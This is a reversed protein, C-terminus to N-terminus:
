KKAGRQARLRTLEDNAKGYLPSRQEIQMLAAEAARNEEEYKASLNNQAYSQALFNHAAYALWSGSDSAGFLERSRELDKLATGALERAADPPIEPSKAQQLRSQADDMAIIALTRRAVNCEMTFRSSYNDNLVAELLSRADDNIGTEHLVQGAMLLLPVPTMFLESFNRFRHVRRAATGITRALSQQLASDHLQRARQWEPYLAFVLQASAMPNDPAKKVADLMVWVENGFLTGRLFGTVAVVGIVAAWILQNVRNFGIFAREHIYRLLMGDFLLAAGTILFPLALYQYRDYAPFTWQSVNLMPGLAAVWALGCFVFLRRMVPMTVLIGMGYISLLVTLVAWFAPSAFSGVRELQQFFSATWPLFAVRLYIMLTGPLNLVMDRFTWSASHYVAAAWLGLWVFLACLILFPAYSLMATIWTPSPRNDDDAASQVRSLGCLEYILVIPAVVLGSSKSLCGASMLLTALAVRQVRPRNQNFYVALAWFSFLGCLLTKQESIWDVSEPQIAHSAWLVAIGLALLPRHTLNRLMAMCAWAAGAHLLVSVIRYPLPHDGFLHWQIWVLLEHLPAYHSLHHGFFLNPSLPGTANPNNHIMAHDDLGYFPATLAGAAPVCAAIVVAWTLPRGTHPTAQSDVTM